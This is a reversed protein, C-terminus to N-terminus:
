DLVGIVANQNAFVYNQLFTSFVQTHWWLYFTHLSTIWTVTTPPPWSTINASHHPQTSLRAATVRVRSLPDCHHCQHIYTDLGRGARLAQSCGAQQSVHGRPQAADCTDGVHDSHQYEGLRSLGGRTTVVMPGLGPCGLHPCTVTMCCPGAQLRCQGTGYCLM